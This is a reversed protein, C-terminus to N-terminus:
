GRAAMLLALATLLRALATFNSVVVTERVRVVKGGDVLAAFLVIALCAARRFAMHWQVLARPYTQGARLM